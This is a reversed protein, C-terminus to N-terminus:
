VVELLLDHMDPDLHGLMARHMADLVRPDPNTPGPGFLLRAPPNLPPPMTTPTM